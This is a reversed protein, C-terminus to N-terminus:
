EVEVMEFGNWRLHVKSLPENCRRCVTTQKYETVIDATIDPTWEVSLKPVHFGLLCPLKDLIGM